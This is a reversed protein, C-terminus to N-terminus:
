IHWLNFLFRHQTLTHRRHKQTYITYPSSININPIFCVSSKHHAMQLCVAARFYQLWCMFKMIKFGKIKRHAAPGVFLIDTQREIQERAAAMGLAVEWWQRWLSLKAKAKWSNKQKLSWIYLLMEGNDQPETQPGLTGSTEISHASEWCYPNTSTFDTLYQHCHM